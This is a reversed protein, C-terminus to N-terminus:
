LFLIHATVSSGHSLGEILPDDKVQTFCFAYSGYFIMDVAKTSAIMACDLLRFWKFGSKKVM